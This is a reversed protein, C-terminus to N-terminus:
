EDWDFHFTLIQGTGVPIIGIGNATGALIKIGNDGFPLILGAGIAAGIPFQRIVGGITCDATHAAFATLAVPADPDYDAETLGTGPTGASTLRVLQVECATNTTNFVGVERLFGGRGSVGYISAIPRVTTGILTAKASVTHRM